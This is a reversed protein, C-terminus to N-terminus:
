QDSNEPLRPLSGTDGRDPLAKQTAKVKHRRRSVILLLCGSIVFIGGIIERFSPFQGLLLLAILMVYVPQSQGIVAAKSLDLKRLAMLYLTRALLPGTIGLVLVGPWVKALGDFSVGGALVVVWYLVALFVNRIWTLVVPDVHRVAIKSIFETIGFLLSGLLVLWFGTSYEGRLTIRMLIIGGISLLAGVAELRTFREKLFLMGLVIAVLVESRNLFAALSPDMRKIGAWYAWIALWSSVSFMLLWFWGRRGLHLVSSMGRFPLLGAAMVVSAISFIIGNMLLPSIAELNWKGIAISLGSAASSAIALIYGGRPSIAGPADSRETDASM